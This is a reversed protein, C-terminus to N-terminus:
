KEAPTKQEAAPTENEEEEDQRRRKWLLFALGFSLLAALILIFAPSLLDRLLDSFANVTLLNEGKIQFHLEVDHSRQNGITAYVVVRHDGNGLDHAPRIQFDGAESDAVLASTFTLSQWTAMVRSTAHTVGAIEPRQIGSVLESGSQIRYGNFYKIVPAPVDLTSDIQVFYGRSEQGDSAVVMIEYQGDGLELDPTFIFKGGVDTRTAGLYTKQGDAGVVYLKVDSLPRYFGKIAPTPDPTIITEESFNTVRPETVKNIDFDGAVKPDSGYDLVEEGDLLQDGDTDPNDPNTDLIRELEDSLGDGDTDGTQNLDHYDKNPDPNTGPHSNGTSSASGGTNQSASNGAGDNTNGTETGTDAPPTPTFIDDQDDAPEPDDEQDDPLVPEKNAPEQEEETDNAPLQDHNSNHNTQGGEQGGGASSGAGSNGNTTTSGTEDNETNGTGSNDDTGTTAGSNGTDNSGDHGTNTQNGGTGTGSNHNGGGASTAQTVTASVQETNESEMGTIGVTRVTYFYTQGTTLGEDRFTQGFVDDAIKQGTAGATSSRYIRLHDFSAPNKWSLKIAAGNKLDTAAVQSPADPALEVIKYAFDQVASNEQQVQGPNSKYIIEVKKVSILATEQARKGVFNVTFATGNQAPNSMTGLATIRLQGATSNNKCGTFIEGCKIDSALFDQPDYDLDVTLALVEQTAQLNVDVPTNEGLIITNDGGPTTAALTVVPTEPTADEAGSPWHLVLLLSLFGVSAATIASVIKNGAPIKGFTVSM